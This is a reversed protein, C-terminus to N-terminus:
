ELIGLARLAISVEGNGLMDSFEKYSRERRIRGAVLAPHIHNRGAFDRVADASKTFRILSSQWTTRPIIANEAFEDAESELVEDNSEGANEDLIAGYLVRPWHRVLHGLEHLLVFWFNDVRDHRATIGIVGYRGDLSMAAGDLKTKPLHPEVVVIIGHQLLLQFASEIGNPVASLKAIQATDEASPPSFQRALGIKRRAHSLVRAQWALLAARRATSIEGNTKRHLAVSIESPARHFFDALVRSREAPSTRRLDIRTDFWGRSNMMAFPFDALTLDEPLGQEVAEKQREVSVTATFRVGIARGMEAVRRLSASEYLEKEYKQIQQEQVGAVNALERQTLGAAIRAEVLARGLEPLGEIEIPEDGSQRRREYAVLQERLDKAQREYSAKQAHAIVPDVGSAILKLLDFKSLSTEYGALSKRTSRYERENKIM